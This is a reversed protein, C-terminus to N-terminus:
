GPLAITTPITHCGGPAGSAAPAPGSGLLRYRHAGQPAQIAHRRGRHSGGPIVARSAIDGEDISRDSLRHFSAFGGDFPTGGRVAFIPSGPALDAALPVLERENGGSGHLLVLPMRATDTGPIFHHIHSTTTM